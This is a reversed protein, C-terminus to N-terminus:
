VSQVELTVPIMWLGYYTQAPKAAGLFDGAVFLWFHKGDNGVFKSPICPNYWSESEFDQTHFLSWPGWPAPAQYFELRTHKFRRAPDALDPYYWQPMIYLELGPNYHIGTMSAHGPARFTYLASDYRPHWIPRHQEDYGHVFEWDSPNLQSIRDKRVRGLIMWNGNNWAGDNSVAYVYQDAGDKTGQGDKGYQVFFPTSFARGPFMSHGRQPAPSWTKGHDASKIISADWTEQIWFPSYRGEWYGTPVPGPETPCTLHRSVALYLVGDVCTLGCAKWMGGDERRNESEVGFERMCNVTAGKLAPPVDGTLRSIALNSHCAGHFASTDDSSVYLEGDDAWAATWTDGASDPCLIAEGLSAARIQLKGLPTNAPASGVLTRVAV